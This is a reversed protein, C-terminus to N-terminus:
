DGLGAKRAVVVAHARSSVSLKDFIHSVTNRVTKESIALQTAITVNDLGRAVLDLV